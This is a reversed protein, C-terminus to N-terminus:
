RVHSKLVTNVSEKVMFDSIRTLKTELLLAPAPQLATIHFALLFFTTSESRSFTRWCASSNSLLSRFIL